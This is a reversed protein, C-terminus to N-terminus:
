AAADPADRGRSRRREAARARSAPTWRGAVMPAANAQNKASIQGIRAEILRRYSDMVVLRRKGIYVFELEGTAFMSYVTSKGLGSIEEFRSITATVVGPPIKDPDFKKPM